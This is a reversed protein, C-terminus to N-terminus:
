VAPWVIIPTAEQFSKSNGLPKWGSILLKELAIILKLEIKSRIGSDKRNNKKHTPADRSKDEPKDFLWLIM